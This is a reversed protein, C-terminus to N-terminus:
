WFQSKQCSFIGFNHNEAHFDVLITIKPMFIYWFQSKRCSFRGFNHNKTCFYVVQCCQNLIACEGLYGGRAWGQAKADCVPHGSAHTFFDGLIYGLGHKALM